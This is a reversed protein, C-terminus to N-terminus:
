GAGVPPRYACIRAGGSPRQRRQTGAPRRRARTRTYSGVILLAGWALTLALAAGAALRMPLPRALVIKGHWHNAAALAAPRFLSPPTKSM